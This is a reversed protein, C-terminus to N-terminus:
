RPMRGRAREIEARMESLAQRDSSAGHADIWPECEAIEFLVLDLEAPIRELMDRGAQPVEQEAALAKLVSNAFRWRARTATMVKHLHQRLLAVALAAEGQAVFGDIAIRNRPNLWETDAFGPRSRLWDAIRACERAALYRQTLPLSIVQGLDLFIDGADRRSLRGERMAKTAASGIAEFDRRFLKFGPKAADVLERALASLHPPPPSRDIGFARQEFPSLPVPQKV